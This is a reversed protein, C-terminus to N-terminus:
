VGHSGSSLSSGGLHSIQRPSRPLIRRPLKSALKLEADRRTAEREAEPGRGFYEKTREPGDPNYGKRYRVRWRGDPMKEVAM